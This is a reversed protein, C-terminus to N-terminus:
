NWQLEQKIIINMEAAYELPLESIIPSLFWNVIITEAEKKNIWRSQLYFLYDENIKGASAEHAVISETNEVKIVPIANSTSSEDIIIWDCEISAISNIATKKIDLLWRYISDWWWKSISKSIVKSNTNKWIHIVKAGADIIQWSNAFAIWLHNASSWDWVLVSCPYLMTLWAWMNWGVWDIHADENLIARKTNLNYTDKSWNEVSSYRLRANKGVYLEVCWAHLSLTWYKPASCWEIYHAESEDELVIITHEFQWGAKVNMRFYAQLPESVKIWKPIYLFTWGSWVAAHLSAFKHDTIPVARMFYKKLLDSHNKCAVSMDEFIIWLDQLEKKISHYVVESDYQAWVWALMKKEAEPIWLKEFTDKINEPVEEWTKADKTTDKPKAFFYIEDFNLKSLDPWWTPLPTSNFVELAKLRIELMWDPDNNAFSIQRIVEESLWPKLNEYVIKDQINLIEELNM